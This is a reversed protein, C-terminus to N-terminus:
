DENIYMRVIAGDGVLSRFGFSQQGVTLRNDTYEGGVVVIIQQQVMHMEIEVSTKNSEELSLSREFGPYPLSLVRPTSTVKILIFQGKGSVKYTQRVRDRYVSHVYDYYIMEGERIHSEWLREGTKFNEIILVRTHKVEWLSCATFFFLLLFSLFYQNVFRIM